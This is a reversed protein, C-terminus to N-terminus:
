YNLYNTSHTIPVFIPRLHPKLPYLKILNELRYIETLQLIM